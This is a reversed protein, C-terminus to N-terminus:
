TNVATAIVSEKAMMVFTTSPRENSIPANKEPTSMALNSMIFMSATLVTKPPSSNEDIPVM